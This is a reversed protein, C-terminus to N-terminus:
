YEQVSVWFGKARVRLGLGSESSLSKPISRSCRFILRLGLGILRLGLGSGLALNVPLKFLEKTVNRRAILRLRVRAVIDDNNSRRSLSNYLTKHCCCLFM